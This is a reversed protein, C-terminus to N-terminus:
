EFECGFLATIDACVLTQQATSYQFIWDFGDEPDIYFRFEGPEPETISRVEFPSLPLLSQAWGLEKRAHQLEAELAANENCYIRPL